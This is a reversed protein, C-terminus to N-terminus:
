FVEMDFDSNDSPATTDSVNEEHDQLARNVVNKAAENEISDIAETKSMGEYMKLITSVLEPLCEHDTLDCVHGGMLEKWKYAVDGGHNKRYWGPLIIHYCHFKESAMELCDEATICAPTAEDFNDGFVTKIEDYRLFPTPLEDGFTFLFGKEGRKNFCDMEVYKGAFYWPLIYSEYPNTGGGKEIYIKELQELIRLDTEFQTVQLPADDGVEVDGVGMFMIHPNFKVSEYIKKILKPFDRKILDMLFSDMSGTVDEALIIGRSHPSAPSDCAERPLKMVSPDFLKHMKNSKFIQHSSTAREYKREEYYTKMSSYDISSGGM